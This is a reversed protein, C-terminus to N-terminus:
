LMKCLREREDVVDEPFALIGEHSGGEKCDDDPDSSCIGEEDGFLAVWVDSPSEVVDRIRQVVRLSFL